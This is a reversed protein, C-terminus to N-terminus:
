SVDQSWTRLSKELWLNLESSMFLKFAFQEIWAYSIQKKVSPKVGSNLSHIRHGKYFVYYQQSFSSNTNIHKFIKFEDKCHTKALSTISVINGHEHGALSRHCVSRSGLRQHKQCLLKLDIWLLQQLIQRIVVTVCNGHRCLASSFQGNKLCHMTHFYSRHWSKLSIMTHEYIPKKSSFFSKWVKREWESFCYLVM